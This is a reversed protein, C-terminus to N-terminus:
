EIDEKLIIKLDSPSPHTNGSMLRNAQNIQIHEFLRRISRGNAFQAGEKIVMYRIASVLSPEADRDLILGSKNIMGTFIMLLEDLTYDCFHISKSFRSRLGPNSDLFADMENTYGAVIVVLRNRLDEMLKLLTDIAEQGYDKSGSDSGLLTYAEDIFLVGGIASEVVQAVKKATQGVYGAVLDQRSAEVLRNNTCYGIRYLESALIRAVTTKGTGPNGTFVLHLSYDPNSMNALYRMQRISVINMISKLEQKVEPIGVLSELNDQNLKSAESVMVRNEIPLDESNLTMLIASTRNKLKSIRSAQRALTQEFLNRVTRANAFAKGPSKLTLEMIGPLREKLDKSILYSQDAAISEFVTCLEQASFDPFDIFRTFRSELGPNSQIFKQMEGPYGAAIVILDERHNEMFALITNISEQGFPDVETLGENNAMMLSYAEDIFLVGGLAKDLIRTTKIATQGVFGAVLDARSVELFHGKSLWGLGHMTEGVLRAVTTKGTGPSGTFVMHFSPKKIDIGLQEREKHLICIEVIQRIEDKAQSIGVMSDLRTLIKESAERISSPDQPAIEISSHADNPKTKSNADAEKLADYFLKYNLVEKGKENIYAYGCARVIEAKGEPSSLDEKSNKVKTLLDEGRLTINLTPASPAVERDAADCFLFHEYFEMGKPTVKGGIRALIYAFRRFATSVKKLAQSDNEEDYNECVELLGDIWDWYAEFTTGDLRDFFEAAINEKESLSLNSIQGSTYRSLYLYVDAIFPTLSSATRKDYFRTYGWGIFVFANAETSPPYYEADESYKDLWAIVDALALCDAYCHNIFKTANPDM